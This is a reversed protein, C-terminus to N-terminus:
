QNIKKLLVTAKDRIPYIIAEKDAVKRRVFYPDSRSISELLKVLERKDEDGYAGISNSIAQITSERVEYNEDAMAKKFATQIEKKDHSSLSYGFSPLKEPLKGLYFLADTKESKTGSTLKDALAPITSPGIKAFADVVLSGGAHGLVTLMAPIAKSNRCEGLQEILEASYEGGAETVPDWSISELQKILTEVKQTTCSAASDGYAYFCPMILLLVIISVPRYFKM